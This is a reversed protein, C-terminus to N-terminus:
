NGAMVKELVNAPITGQYIEDGVLFSPTGLIRKKLGHWIDVQLIHRNVPDSRAFTLAGFDLGTEQSIQKLGIEGGKNVMDYLMDNVQWFKGNRAAHIAVLSLEGSGVHFPTKVILNFKDDMPFHRHMLRIKDPNDAVLQRLFHHMKKCQFCQYDSFEVITLEPKEAGMWPVHDETIGHPIGKALVPASMHWYKPFFGILLIVFLAPLAVAFRHRHRFFAADKRIGPILSDHDFRRRVMWVYLLLLLNVAYSLICMICYSRIYYNSILALIVSYACFGLAILNLLPWGRQCQAAKSKTLWALMLVWLYGWIGWVPVPVGLFISYPSQSVTDCNIAKSIACFSKYGLDTYVRYHSIALYISDILGATALLIVCWWYFLFPWHKITSVNNSM